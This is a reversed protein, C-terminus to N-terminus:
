AEGEEGEAEAPALYYYEGLEKQYRDLRSGPKNVRPRGSSPDRRYTVGLERLFANMGERKGMPSSARGNRGPEGTFVILRDSSFDILGVDHDIVIVGKGMDRSYKQLIRALALREEVDLFASPEDLAYVDADRLLCLAIALRQLEGGSLKSVVKNLLSDVGLPRVVGSLAPEASWASGVAGSLAEEVTGQYSTSIYQPKYSIRARMYVEGSDPSDVGALMRLFTTKGLANAGVVGLVEGMRLDGESVTLRFGPFSKELKTYAVIPPSEVAESAGRLDFVIQTARIRMNDSPLYGELFSNIGTGLAMQNSIVGYVGPRGYVVHVFDAAYDMFTLDHEVLLVYKGSRALDRIVRAVALRQYVDNYSGPEDFFYADADRSAAMAIALRQLEGGSLEEPRRELAGDLGLRSALERSRGSDDFRSLLEGSTGSWMARIQEISQPKISVRLSGTSVRELYERLETGQFFRLIERWDPPSDHSGLNPVMHGSLINLATTKGVGNRGMLGVVRGRRPMPLRYLRFANPGYQHVPSEDPEEALNVITIASFPCKRVCINCGICLQENIIPYGDEGFEVVKHGTLQPPCFRQCEHGCKKPLCLERDIVAIRKPM